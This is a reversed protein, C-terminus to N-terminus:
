ASPKAYYRSFAEALTSRELWLAVAVSVVLGVLLFLGIVFPPKPSSRAAIASTVNKGASQLIVEPAESLQEKLLDDTAAM